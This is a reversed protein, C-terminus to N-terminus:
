GYPAQSIMATNGNMLSLGTKVAVFVKYRSLPRLNKIIAFWLLILTTERVDVSM